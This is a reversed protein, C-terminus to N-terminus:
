CDHCVNDVFRLCVKKKVDLLERPIKFKHSLLQLSEEWRELIGVYDIVSLENQEAVEVVQAVAEPRFSAQDGPDFTPTHLCLRTDMRSVNLRHALTSRWLTPTAANSVPRLLTSLDAGQQLHDATWKHSAFTDISNIYCGSTM